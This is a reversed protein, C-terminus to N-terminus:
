GEKLFEPNEYINGIVVSEKLTEPEFPSIDDLFVFNILEVYFGLGDYMYDMAGCGSNSPEIYNYSGFKVVMRFGQLELIDGEFIEIGNLDKVGTSQMLIVDEFSFSELDRDDPLGNVFYIEQTQVENYEYDIDLLNDTKVMRKETKLWTRFKPIM